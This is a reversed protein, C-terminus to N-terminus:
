KFEKDYYADVTIVIYKPVANIELLGDVPILPGTATGKEKFSRWSIIGIDPNTNIFTPEWNPFGLYRIADKNFLGKQYILIWKLKNNYYLVEYKGNQYTTAECSPLYDCDKSKKIETDPNGLVEAVEKPSRNLISKIFSGSTDVTKNVINSPTEEALKTKVELQGCSTILIIGLLITKIYIVKKM